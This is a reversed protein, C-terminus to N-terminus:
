GPKAKQALHKKIIQTAILRAIGEMSVIPHHKAGYRAGDNESGIGHASVSQHLVRAGEVERVCRYTKGNMEVTFEYRQRQKAV